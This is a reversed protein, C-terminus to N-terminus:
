EKQATSLIRGGSAEAYSAGSLEFCARAEPPRSFGQDWGRADESHRGSAIRRGGGSSGGRQSRSARRCSRRRTGSRRNTSSPTRFTRRASVGGANPARGQRRKLHGGPPVGPTKVKRAGARCFRWSYHGLGYCRYQGVFYIRGDVAPLAGVAVNKCHMVRYIGPEGNSHIVADERVRLWPNGCM